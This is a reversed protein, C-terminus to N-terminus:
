VEVYGEEELERRLKSIIKARKEVVEMAEKNTILDLPKNRFRAEPDKLNEYEPLMWLCPALLVM